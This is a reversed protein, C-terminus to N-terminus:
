AARRNAVREGGNIAMTTMAVNGTSAIAALPTL